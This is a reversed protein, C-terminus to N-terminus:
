MVVTPLMHCKVAEAGIVGSHVELFDRPHLRYEFFAFIVKNQMLILCSYSICFKLKQVWSYILIQKGM